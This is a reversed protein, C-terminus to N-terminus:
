ELIENIIIDVIENDSLSDGGIIKNIVEKKYNVM